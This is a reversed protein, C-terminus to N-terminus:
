IIIWEVLYKQHKLLMFRKYKKEVRDCPRVEEFVNQINYPEM